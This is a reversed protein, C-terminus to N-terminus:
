VAKNASPAKQPQPRVATPKARVAGNTKGAVLTRDTKRQEKFAKFLDGVDAPRSEAGELNRCGPGWAGRPTTVFLREVEKGSRRLDMWVVDYFKASLLARAKGPILPLIGEGTKEIQGDILEGGTETYHSIIVVHAPITLLLEIVHSLRRFILQYASRGDEKGNSTLTSRWCEEMMRHALDSLPDVVVTKIKGEKAAVKAEVIAKLASDFGRLRDFDFNLTRRKAGNLACDDECLLVRVPGPSTSIVATSKGCKAPGMLLVREYPNDELASAPFAMLLIKRPDANPSDKTHVSPPM